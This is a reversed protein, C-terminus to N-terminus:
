PRSALRELLVAAVLRSLEYKVDPSKGSQLEVWALLKNVVWDDVDIGDSPVVFGKVVSAAYDTSLHEAFNDATLRVTRKRPTVPVFV